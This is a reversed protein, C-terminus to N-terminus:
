IMECIDFLHDKRFAIIQIVDIHIVLKIYKFM